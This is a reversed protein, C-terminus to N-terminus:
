YGGGPTGGGPAGSKDGQKNYRGLNGIFQQMVTFEKGATPTQSKDFAFNRAQKEDLIGVFTVHDTADFTVKIMQRQDVKPLYIGEQSDTEGLYYWTNNDFTSVMTPPGWNTEVDARTSTQAHIMQIKHQSLLNGHTSVTPACASVLLGALLASALVLPHRLGAPHRM